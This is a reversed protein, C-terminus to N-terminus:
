RNNDPRTTGPSTVAYTKKAFDVTIRTGDGFTTMQVRRSADLFRHDTMELTNLRSVVSLVEKVQAITEPRAGPSVYPLGANLLCHLRGADGAPIGWGGDNSLEWPLLISDHYVLNFLPVAIGQGEGPGYGKPLTPYPGHHVMDLSRILYDAPEESSVVYGRARLLDFCERRYRACDSRTVPNSPQYSEELPIVAFVDLYAGKIKIGHEAFLDHNRRVYGPAFRPSLITQRGGGWEAHETRSGDSNRVALKDDFSAASFFFDRYQDHVALLYGLSECTDALKRLGEWGGQEPGPPLVDPHANDYGRFGWGDLHVYAEAIGAAKLAQLSSAVAEFTQLQHNSEMQETRFFRAGKVRHYLAGVHVVPKGIVRELNPTRVRKEALSVFQGSEQVYRRYRKAMQVYGSREDFVYRVMRPYRLRGMSSYWLPQIRTPGGPMHSYDVGADDSTELITQVGRERAIQGWWSMYLARSNALDRYRIQQQWNGPILIGQMRPIVAVDTETNGSELTKPFALTALNTIDEVPVIEFVAEDGILHILVDIRATPAMPFDALSLRMGASFGTRFDGAEKRRADLLSFSRGDRLEVDKDDAPRWHWSGQSSRVSMSLDKKVIVLVLHGNKVEWETSTERFEGVGPMPRDVANALLWSRVEDMRVYIADVEEGTTAGKAIAAALEDLKGSKQSRLDPPVDIVRLRDLQTQLVNLRNPIGQGAALLCLSLVIQWM